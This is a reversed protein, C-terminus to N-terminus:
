NLFPITLAVSIYNSKELVINGFSVSDGKLSLKAKRKHSGSKIFLPISVLTTAAGVYSLWLGENNNTTDNDLVGGGMNIAMGAGIMVIGSGLCIWAATKNQKSKIIHFDYLQEPTKEPQPEIVQGNALEFAFLLVLFVSITLKM